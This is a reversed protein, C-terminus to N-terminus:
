HTQKMYYYEKQNINHIINKEIVKITEDIHSFAYNWGKITAKQFNDVVVPHNKTFKESTFLIDNYFDFGYEKPDFINYKIGLDDLKYLENSMYASSIDTKGEVLDEIHFHPDIRKMDSLKINKSYLMSLLPATKIADKDIMIKKNKFDKIQNIGSSKLTVLIHPSSQFIANLLVVKAGNSRDLVIKPYAVGFTSKGKEVDKTIDIGRKYEKLQVKLGVDKYFGKYKAMYFGAFEFQHKWLLQVSINQLDKANLISSYFLLCIWVLYRIKM